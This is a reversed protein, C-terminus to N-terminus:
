RGSGNKSRGQAGFVQEMADVVYVVPGNFMAAPPM